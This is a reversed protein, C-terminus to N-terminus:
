KKVPNVGTLADLHQGALRKIPFELFCQPLYHRLMREFDIGKYQQRIMNMADPCQRRIIPIIRHAPIDDFPQHALGCAILNNRQKRGRADLALFQPQPLPSKPFMLDAIIIKRHMYIVNMPIWHLMAIHRTNHIPRIRAKVSIQTIANVRFIPRAIGPTITRV